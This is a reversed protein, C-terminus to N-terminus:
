LGRTGLWIACGLQMPAQHAYHHPQFSIYGTVACKEACIPRFSNSFHGENFRGFRVNKEFNVVFVGFNALVLAVLTDPSPINGRLSNRHVDKYRLHVNKELEGSTSVPALQSQDPQFFILLMRAEFGPEIM